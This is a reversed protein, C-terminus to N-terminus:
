QYIDFGQGLVCLTPSSLAPVLMHGPFLVCHCKVSALMFMRAALMQYGLPM